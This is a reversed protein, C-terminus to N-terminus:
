AANHIDSTSRRAPSIQSVAWSDLDARAYGVMRAGIKHFAPGGGVCALKALTKASGFGYKERLYDAAEPRRLLVAAEGSHAKSKGHIEM